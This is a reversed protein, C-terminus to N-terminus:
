LALHSHVRPNQTVSHCPESFAEASANKTSSSSSSSLRKLRTRSKTVGHVAAELCSYQLPHWRRRQCEQEQTAFLRCLDTSFHFPWESPSWSQGPSIYWHIQVVTTTIPTTFLSLETYIKFISSLPSGSPWLHLWLYSPNQGLCFLILSTLAEIIYSSNIAKNWLYPFRLGFFHSLKGLLVYSPIRIQPTFGALVAGSATGKIM